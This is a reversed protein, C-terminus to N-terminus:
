NDLVRKALSKESIKELQLLHRIKNPKQSAAPIAIVPVDPLIERLIRENSATSLDLKGIGMLITKIKKVGRSRLAEVSLLTHNITGLRNAAVLLVEGGLNEIIDAIFLKKTLPVMIGGAGEILLIDTKRAVKEIAGIVGKITIGKQKSTAAAYPALPKNYFFPNVEENTLESGQISQLLQVDERGGSCFPKMALAKIGKQRLHLLLLATLVTKGVGTDTGTVFIMRAM